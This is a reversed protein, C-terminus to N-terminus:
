SFKNTGIIKHISSEKKISIKKGTERPNMQKLFGLGFLTIKIQNVPLSTQSHPTRPPEQLRPGGVIGFCFM